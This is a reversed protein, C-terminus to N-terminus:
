LISQMQCDFKQGCVRFKSRCDRLNFPFRDRNASNLTLGDTESCVRRSPIRSRKGSNKSM